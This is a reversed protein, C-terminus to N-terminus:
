PSEGESRCCPPLTNPDPAQLGSRPAESTVTAAIARPSLEARGLLTVCGVVILAVATAMPLRRGFLGALRHVGISLCLLVPVTGLWFALMVAAGRLPGGSGAATVLFAYLWGCPLLTTMLGIILARPAGRQRSAFQQGRRLLRTWPAPVRLGSLVPVRWGRLRAVEALGIAVMLGGAIALAVPQLGALTSALNLLAGLAGAAAGLLTYTVLRGGHYALHRLWADEANRGGTAAVACFPGCMGACHLSGLISAALVTILLTTM